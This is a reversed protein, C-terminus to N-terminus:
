DPLRLQVSYRMDAFHTKQHAFAAFLSLLASLKYHSGELRTKSSCNALVNVGYRFVFIHVERRLLEEEHVLVGASVVGLSLPANSLSFLEVSM